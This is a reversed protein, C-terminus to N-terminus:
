FLLLKFANWDNEHETYSVDEAITVKAFATERFCFVNEFRWTQRPARKWLNLASKHLLCGSRGLGMGGDPERCIESQATPHYVSQHMFSSLFSNKKIYTPSKHLLMSIWTNRSHGCIFYFVACIINWSQTWRWVLCKREKKEQFPRLTSWKRKKNLVLFNKKENKSTSEDRSDKLHPYIIEYIWIYLYKYYMVYLVHYISWEFTIILSARM